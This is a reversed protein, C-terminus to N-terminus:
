VFLPRRPHWLTASKAGTRGQLGTSSTGGRVGLIVDNPCRLMRHTLVAGTEGCQSFFANALQPNRLAPTAAAGYLSSATEATEAYSEEKGDGRGNEFGSLIRDDQAGPNETELQLLVADHALSGKDM